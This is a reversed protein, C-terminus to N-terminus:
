TTGKLWHNKFKLLMGSDLPPSTVICFALGWELFDAETPRTHAQSNANGALKSPISIINAQTDCKLDQKPM